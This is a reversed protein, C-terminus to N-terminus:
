QWSPGLEGATKKYFPNFPKKIAEPRANIEFIKQIEEVTYKGGFLDGNMNNAKEKLIIIHKNFIKIKIM